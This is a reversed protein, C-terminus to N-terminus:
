TCVEPDQTEPLYRQFLRIAFMTCNLHLLADSQCIVVASCRKTILDEKVIADCCTFHEFITIRTFLIIGPMTEERPRLPVASSFGPWCKCASCEPTQLPVCAVTTEYKCFKSARRCHCVRAALFSSSHIIPHSPVVM